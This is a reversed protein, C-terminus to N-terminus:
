GILFFHGELRLITYFIILRKKLSQGRMKLRLVRLVRQQAKLHPRSTTSEPNRTYLYGAYRMTHCRAGSLWLDVSFVVDEYIMGEPFRLKGDAFLERRYLRMCPSTFQYHNRVLHRPGVTWGKEEGDRTRRYGSQVYDYKGKRMVKLHRECWDPALRDDADVFAIYEGKAHEIGLNRAAAQGAHLQTLLVIQRQPDEEHHKAYSKAITPSNDSSSDDVLIIQLPESTIQAIVSDLCAALFPEANFIPIIISIM